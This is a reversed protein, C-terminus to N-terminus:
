SPGLASGRVVSASRGHRLSALRCLKRDRHYAHLVQSLFLSRTGDGSAEFKAVTGLFFGLNALNDFTGAFYETTRQGSVNGRVARKFPGFALMGPGTWARSR